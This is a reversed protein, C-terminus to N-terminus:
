QNMRLSVWLKLVLSKLLQQGAGFSSGKEGDDDITIQVQVMIVLQFQINKEM